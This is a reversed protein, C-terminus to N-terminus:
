KAQMNQKGITPTLPIELKVKQLNHMSSLESSYKHGSIPKFQFYLSFLDIITETQLKKKKECSISENGLIKRTYVTKYTDSVIHSKKCINVVNFFVHWSKELYQTSRM